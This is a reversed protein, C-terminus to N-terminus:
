SQPQAPDNDSRSIELWTGNVLLRKAITVLDDRYAPKSFRFTVQEGAAKWASDTTGGWAIRSNGTAQSYDALARLCYVAALDHAAITIAYRFESHQSMKRDVPSKHGALLYEVALNAVRLRRVKRAGAACGSSAEEADTGCSADCRHKSSAVM